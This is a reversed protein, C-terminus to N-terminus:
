FAYEVGLTMFGVYQKYKGAGDPVRSPDPPPQMRPEVDRPFYVVQTYALVLRIHDIGSWIGGASIFLKNMDLLAPDLTEDPVANSDFAVSGNLELTPSIWYSAGGKVGFTDNWNRHLNAIVATSNPSGDGDSDVFAGAGDLECSDDGIESDILCQDQMVSWRTFDGNLRIELEPTARYRAGLRFVDPLSQRIILQQTTTAGAGFKNILEGELSMEGLAPQSQYSAGIALQRMPEWIVGGGVALDIGDVVAQSRGETVQGSPSVLDDTGDAVRARITDIESRVMSIGAGFSLNAGPIRYAAGLTLYLSRITGDITAWRQVGDFAGPFQENGDFDTNKDWSAQGGFPVYGAIGVGLGDVGFDSVVGLFPSAVVNFLRAEGSNADVTDSPTGGDGPDRVNDIADVPRDYNVSRWAFLGEAYIRTGSALALGAPNYYISTPHDGAPHGHEGGFRATAFGGAHARGALCTLLAIAAPVSRHILPLTM